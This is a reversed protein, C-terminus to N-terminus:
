EGVKTLARFADLVTNEATNLLYYTPFNDGLAAKINWAYLPVKNEAILELQADLLAVIARNIHAKVAEQKTQTLVM